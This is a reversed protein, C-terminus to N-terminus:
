DLARVFKPWAIRRGTLIVGRLPANRQRLENVIADAAPRRTVETRLLLLVDDALMAAGLLQEPAEAGEIPPVLLVTWRFSERLSALLREGTRDVTWAVTGVKVRSCSSGEPVIRALSGNELRYATEEFTVTAVPGDGQRELAAILSSLELGYAAPDAGVIAVVRGRQGASEALLPLPALQRKGARPSMLDAAVPLGLRESVETRDLFRDRRAILVFMTAAACVVGAVIAGAILLLPSNRRGEPLTPQQIVRVNTSGTHAEVERSRVDDLQTSLARFREEAVDRRTKLQAITAALENLNRLRAESGSLEQGLRGLKASQGTADADTQLIRDRTADYYSNRGIRRAERLEGSQKDIASRLGAIQKDLQVILPSDAMYRGQLDAKKAELGLIQAQMDAV